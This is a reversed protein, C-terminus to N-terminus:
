KPYVSTHKQIYQVDEDTILHSQFSELLRSFTNKINESIKRLPPNWALYVQMIMDAIQTLLYHSKMVTSNRSNIHGIHYIGNKQNNFGENEM